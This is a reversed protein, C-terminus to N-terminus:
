LANSTCMNYLPKGDFQRELLLAAGQISSHILWTPRLMPEGDTLRGRCKACMMHSWLAPVRMNLQCCCPTMRHAGCLAERDVTPTHPLLIINAQM